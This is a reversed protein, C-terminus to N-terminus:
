SQLKSRASVWVNTKSSLLWRQDFGAEAMFDPRQEPPVNKEPGQVDHYEEPKGKFGSPPPYVALGFDGVKPTPYRSFRQTDPRGLFINCPRLDRHVITEWIQMPNSEVVGRELLLGAICLCEFVYWLFPEPMQPADSADVASEEDESDDANDADDSDDAKAAKAAELADEFFRHRQM